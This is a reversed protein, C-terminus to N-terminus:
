IYECRPASEGDFIFEIRYTEGTNVTYCWTKADEISDFKRICKTGDFKFVRYTM